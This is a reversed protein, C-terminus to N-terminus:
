RPPTTPRQAPPPRHRRRAEAASEAEEPPEIEVVRRPRGVGKSASACSSSRCSAAPSRSPSGDDSGRSGRDEAARLCPLPHRQARVGAGPDRAARRRAAAPERSLGQGQRAEPGAQPHQLRAGQDDPRVDDGRRAAVPGRAPPERHDRDRARDRRRAGRDARPDHRARRGDRRALPARRRRAPLQNPRRAPPRPGAAPRRARPDFRGARRDDGPRVPGRSSRTRSSGTSRCIASASRQSPSRPPSCASSPPRSSANRPCGARRTARFDPRAM